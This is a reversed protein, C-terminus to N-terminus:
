FEEFLQERKDELKQLRPICERLRKFEFGLVERLM